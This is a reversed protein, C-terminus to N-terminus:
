SEREFWAMLEIHHTQAFMDILRAERLQYGAQKLVGADRAFTDAACSVYVVWQPRRQAIEYIAQPAGARAPDLLVKSLAQRHWRFQQWPQELDALEAQVEVGNLAANRHLQQVMSAVGEVAIVQAGAQALPISFHGGGAYLDLIPEGAQPALWALAQAVMQQSLQQQVQIFDGPQFQLWCGYGQYRPWESTASVAQPAQEGCHLWVQVQETAAFQQWRKLDAANLPSTFRALVLVQEAVCLEIHGLQRIASLTPLFRQLPALLTQLEPRLIECRQINVIQNSARARYGLQLQRKRGDWHVALRTRRRYHWAQDTCAPLWHQVQWQAFKQLLEDVVRQKHSLQAAHELHQLDCGGCQAYHQCLPQCRQSSTELVKVLRGEHQAQPQLQILEDALAGAVFRVGQATRVVGRGQHDLATVRASMVANAPSPKRAPKFIKAM